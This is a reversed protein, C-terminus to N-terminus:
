RESVSMASLLDSPTTELALAIKAIVDLSPNRVGREIGSIYTRDLGTEFGLQEQTLALKERGARINRALVNRYNEV